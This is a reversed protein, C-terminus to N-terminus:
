LYNKLVYMCIDKPLKIKEMVEIFAILCEHNLRANDLHTITNHLFQKGFDFPSCKYHFIATCYLVYMMDCLRHSQQVDDPQGKYFFGIYRDNNFIYEEHGKYEDAWLKRTYIVFEKDFWNAVDGYTDISMMRTQQEETLFPVINIAYQNRWDFFHQLKRDDSVIKPVWEM